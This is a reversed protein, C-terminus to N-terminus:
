AQTVPFAGPISLLTDQTREPNVPPDVSEMYSIITSRFENIQTPSMYCANGELVGSEFLDLANQGEPTCIGWDIADGACRLLEFFGKYLCWSCVWHLPTRGSSEEMANVDVGSDLLLQILGYKGAQIVFHLTPEASVDAGDAVLQRVSSPSFRIAYELPTCDIAELFYLQSDECITHGPLTIKTKPARLVWINEIIKM